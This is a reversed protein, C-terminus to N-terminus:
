KPTVGAVIALMVSEGDETVPPEDEVPVTVRFPNPAGPPVDIGSEDFLLWAVTGDDTVTAEPALEAVNVTLVELTEDLVLAVIV